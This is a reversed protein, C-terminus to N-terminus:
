KPMSEVIKVLDEMEIGEGSVDYYVKAKADGWRLESRGFVSRNAKDDWRAYTTGLMRRGGVEYIKRAIVSKDGGKDIKKEGLYAMWQPAAGGSLRVVTLGDAYVAAFRENGDGKAKPEVYQVFAGIVARGSTSRPCFSFPPEDMKGVRFTARKWEPKDFFALRELEAASSTEAYTLASVDTGQGGSCGASTLALALLATVVVIKRM